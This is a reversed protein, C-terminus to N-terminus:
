NFYLRLFGWGAAIYYRDEVKIVDGKSMTTHNVNKRDLIDQGNNESSLPNTNYRQYKDWIRELEKSRSSSVEETKVKAWGEKFWEERITVQTDNGRGKGFNNLAVYLRKNDEWYREPNPHEETPTPTLINKKYYIEAEKMSPFPKDTFLFLNSPSTQKNQKRYQKM